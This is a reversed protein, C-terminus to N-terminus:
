AHQESQIEAIAAPAGIAPALAIYALTASIQRHLARDRILHHHFLSWLAGTSAETTLGSYAQDSLLETLAEILRTRHLTGSPGPPFDDTLCIRALLQDNAIHTCLATIARYIGGPWDRAAAQARSAQAIAEGVRQEIAALYCDELSDFYADFTRRSVRAASRIRAATLGAYGSRASLEATAALIISRDGNTSGYTLPELTTDRWVSRQDLKALQSASPDPYSLAWEILEGSAASLEALEGNALRSRSVHAIGGVMGEIVLPPITVGGPTRALSEALMGEFVREAQRARGLAVDGASYAEVLALRADEPRLELSRLFEEFVLQFRRRWNPEGAQAAVMRRSARRAILEYTQLFCDEKSGFLEYFARTSVEAYSVVDRVKLNEYGREAVIGVTAAHIRALQHAAVDRAAMGPGPSLKGTPRSLSGPGSTENGM